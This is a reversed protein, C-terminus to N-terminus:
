DDWTVVMKDLPRGGWDIRGSRTRGEADRVVIRIIQPATQGGGLVRVAPSVESVECIVKFGHARAWREVPTGQRALHWQIVVAVVCFGLLIVVLAILDGNM